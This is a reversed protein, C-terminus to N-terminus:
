RLILGVVLIITAIVCVVGMGAIAALTVVIPDGNDM